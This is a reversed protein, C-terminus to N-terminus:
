ILHRMAFLPGVQNDPLFTDVPLGEHEANVLVVRFNLDLAQELLERDDQAVFILGDTNHQMVKELVYARSGLGQEVVMYHLELDHRRCEAEIGMIIDHYFPSDALSSNAFLHVSKLKEEGAQYGLNAAAKLVRERINQSIGDVNNLVRSVTSISVNAALAIDRQRLRQSVSIRSQIPNEEM